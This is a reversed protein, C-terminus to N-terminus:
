VEISLNLRKIEIVMAPSFLNRKLNLCEFTQLHASQELLYQAFSDGLNNYGFNCMTLQKSNLLSSFIKQGGEDGLLSMSMNCSTLMKVSSLGGALSEMNWQPISCSSLDLLTLTSSVKPLLWELVACLDDNVVTGSLNLEELNGELMQGSWEYSNICVLCTCQNLFFFLTRWAQVSFNNNRLDLTKLGTMSSIVLGLEDVYECSLSCSCLNLHQLNQMKKCSDILIHGLHGDFSNSCLILDQLCTLFEFSLVIRSLHYGQICCQGLDLVLLSSGFAPLLWCLLAAAEDEIVAADLVM